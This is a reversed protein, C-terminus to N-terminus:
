GRVGTITTPKKRKPLDMIERLERIQEPTRVGSPLTTRKEKKKRKFRDLFGKLWTQTWKKKKKPKPPGQGEDTIGYKKYLGPLARRAEGEM